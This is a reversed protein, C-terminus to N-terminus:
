KHAEAYAVLNYPVGIVVSMAGISNLVTIYNTTAGGVTLTSTGSGDANVTLTGKANVQAYQGNYMQVYSATLNGKGDCTDSGISYGQPYSSIPSTIYGTVFVTGKTDKLTYTKPTTSQLVAHGTVVENATDSTKLLQVDTAVGRAVSDLTMAYQPGGSLSFAGSGNANVTYTGSFTTKTVVGLVVDANKVSVNGAGDFTAIGISAFVTTTPDATHLTVLYGYAGKLSANSYVEAARASAGGVSAALLTAAV